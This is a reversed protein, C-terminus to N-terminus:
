SSRRRGKLVTKCFMVSIPASSCVAKDCRAAIPMRSQASLYGDSDTDKESVYQRFKNDPFNIEDIAIDGTEAKAPAIDSSRPNSLLTVGTIAIILLASLFMVAFFLTRIITKMEREQYKYNGITYLFSFVM